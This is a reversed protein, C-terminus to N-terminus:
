FLDATLAFPPSLAPPPGRFTSRGIVQEGTLHEVAFPRGSAVSRWRGAPAPVDAGTRRNGPRRAAASGFDNYSGWM